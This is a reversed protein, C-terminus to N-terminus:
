WRLGVLDLLRCWVNALADLPHKALSPGVDGRWADDRPSYPQRLMAGRPIQNVASETLTDAEKASTGQKVSCMGALQLADRESRMSIADLWHHVTSNACLMVCM